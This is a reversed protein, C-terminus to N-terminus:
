KLRISHLANTGADIFYLVSEDPSLSVSSASYGAQSGVPVALPVKQGTKLDIRYFVDPVGAALEPYLGSGRVVQTPEACYISTAGANFTCKSAWTNLGLDLHSSGLTQTTGSTLWLHPGYNDDRSAVNYLLDNGKPSWKSQFQLGNVTFSEFNEGNAGVPLITQTTAGAAKRFLALVQSDPSIAVQTNEAQDALPEVLRLNNGDIDTSMLWNQDKNKGIWEGALKTGTPDFSFDTLEKPLSAIQKNTTFDYVVNSGDPYEIVAKDQNGSWVVNSVNFFKKDTLPLSRGDAGLKYFIGAQSNYFLVGKDGVSFGTSVAPGQYDQVNTLGGRALDSPAQTDITGINFGPFSQNTSNVTSINGNVPTPLTGNTNQNAPVTVGPNLLNRFFFLYLLYGFISVSIVFGIALLLRRRDM